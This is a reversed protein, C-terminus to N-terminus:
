SERAPPADSQITTAESEPSQASPDTAQPNGDNSTGAEGAKTTQSAKASDRIFLRDLERTVQEIPRDANLPHLLSKEQYYSILPETQQRYVRLRESVVEPRDDDRRYLPQGCKDCIGASKPPASAANYPVGCGRCILRGAAREVLVEDAVEFSIVVSLALGRDGLLRDLAEAQPVTRPFGDLVFFKEADPRRLRWDVLDIVLDDPVLKGASLYEKVKRGLESGEAVAARFLDGTAIHAAQRSSALRAAQTGKGAGPPGLFVTRAPM